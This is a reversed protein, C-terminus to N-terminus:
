RCPYSQENKEGGVENEFQEVKEGAYLKSISVEYATMIKTENNDLRKQYERSQIRGEVAIRQGVALNKAFRANRGWVLCPIYDSKNYSRNVAILVDTIERNFPTTRYVPPKCVHGILILDNYHEINDGELIETVFLTLILKSKGDVQKNFSRFQGRANIISGVSVVFENILRESITIPLEDITGSLRKCAVKFEYFSEGFLVHSLEPNTLIEGCFTVINNKEEM